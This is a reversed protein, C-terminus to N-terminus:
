HAARSIGTPIVYLILFVSRSWFPNPLCFPYKVLQEVNPSGWEFPKPHSIVNPRLYAKVVKMDPFGSPPSLKLWKKRVPSAKLSPDASPNAKTTTLWWSRFQELPTIVDSVLEDSAELGHLWSSWESVCSLDDGSRTFESLIEVATVPGVNQIGVTYDSGCLLALRIIHVSDLGLSHRVDELRYACPEKASGAKKRDAARNKDSKGGAAGFLHRCVAQAGFPWVDSDDSAVLDALGARQLAVCQAEAEEPSVMFPVGFM